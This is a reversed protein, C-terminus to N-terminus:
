YEEVWWMKGGGLPHSAYFMYGCKPCRGLNKVSKFAEHCHPCNRQANAWEQEAADFAAQQRQEREILRELLSESRARAVAQQWEPDALAAEIRKPMGRHLNSWKYAGDNTALLHEQWARLDYEFDRKCIRILWQRGRVIGDERSLHPMTPLWGHILLRMGVQAPTLRM